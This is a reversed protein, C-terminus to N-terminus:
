TSPSVVAVITTQSASCRQIGSITTSLARQDARDYALCEDVFTKQERESMGDWLKEDLYGLCIYKM